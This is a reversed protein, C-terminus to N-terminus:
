KSSQSRRSTAQCIPMKPRANRSPDFKALTREEIQTMRIHAYNAKLMKRGKVDSGNRLYYLTVPSGLLHLSLPFYVPPLRWLSTAFSSHAANTPFWDFNGRSSNTHFRTM